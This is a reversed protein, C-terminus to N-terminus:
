CSSFCSEPCSNKSLSCNLHIGKGVSNSTTPILPSNEHCILFYKTLNWVSGNGSIDGQATNSVVSILGHTPNLPHSLSTFIFSLYKGIPGSSPMPHQQYIGALIVHWKDNLCIFWQERRLIINCRQLKEQIFSDKNAVLSQAPFHPFPAQSIISPLLSICSDWCIPLYVPPAAWPAKYKCSLVQAFRSTTSALM